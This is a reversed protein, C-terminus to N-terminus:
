EETPTSVNIGHSRDHWLLVPLEFPGLHRLLYGLSLSSGKGARGPSTIGVQALNHTAFKKPIIILASPVAQTSNSLIYYLINIAHPELDFGHSGRTPDRANQWSTLAFALCVLGKLTLSKGL